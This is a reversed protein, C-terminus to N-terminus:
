KGSMCLSIQDALLELMVRQLTHVHEVRAYM